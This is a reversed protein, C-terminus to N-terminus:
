NVRTKAHVKRRDAGRRHLRLLEGFSPAAARELDQLREYAEVSVVVAAPRGRRTVRQPQGRTAADVVVSFRNKAEQLTWPFNSM